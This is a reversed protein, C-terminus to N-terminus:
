TYKGKKSPTPLPPMTLRVMHPHTSITHESFHILISREYTNLLVLILTGVTNNNPWGSGIKLSDALFTFGVLVM